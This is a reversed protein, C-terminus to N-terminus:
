DKLCRISFGSKKPGDSRVVYGLGYGLNRRKAENTSHETFSWWCGVKGVSYFSGSSDRHGGPLGSFGSENTAGTNPSAWYQLGTSKMKGGAISEDLYVTLVTWDTDTPVHWGTPCINRPDAVAHWNYLKGFPNEYQSNNNYHAWAGTTLNQWQANNTVNPIADGNRYTTTRLNEAMWEQGNGLIITKYTYGNFIVGLGPNSEVANTTGCSSISFIILTLIGILTAKKTM